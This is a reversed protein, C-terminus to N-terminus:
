FINLACPFTHDASILASNFDWTASATLFLSLGTSEWCLPPTASTKTLAILVLNSSISDYVCGGFVEQRGAHRVPDALGGVRPQLGRRPATAKPWGQTVSGARRLDGTLNPPSVASARPDPASKRRGKRSFTPRSAHRILPRAPGDARDSAPNHASLDM